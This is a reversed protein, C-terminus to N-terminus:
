ERFRALRSRHNGAPLRRSPRGTRGVARGGSAGNEGAESSDGATGSSVNRDTSRCGGILRAAPFNGSGCDDSARERSASLGTERESRVPLSCSRAPEPWDATMAANTANRTRRVRIQGRDSKDEFFTVNLGLAAQRWLPRLVFSLRGVRHLRQPIKCMPRNGGQKRRQREGRGTERALPRPDSSRLLARATSARSTWWRPLASPVRLEAANM